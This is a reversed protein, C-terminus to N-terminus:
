ANMNSNKGVNLLGLLLLLFRAYAAWLPSRNKSPNAPPCNPSSSVGQFFSPSPIITPLGGMCSHSVLIFLSEQFKISALQMQQLIIIFLDPLPGPPIQLDQLRSGSSSKPPGLNKILPLPYMIYHFFMSLLFNQPRSSNQPRISKGSTGELFLANKTFIKQISLFTLKAASFKQMTTHIYNTSGEPSNKQGTQFKPSPSFSQPDHAPSPPIEVHQQCKLFISIRILLLSHISNKPFSSAYNYIQTLSRLYM